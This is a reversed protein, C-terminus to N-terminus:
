NTFSVASENYRHKSVHGDAFCYNAFNDHVFDNNAVASDAALARGNSDSFLVFEAPNRISIVKLGGANSNYFYGTTAIPGVTHRNGTPCIFYAPISNSGTISSALAAIMNSESSFDAGKFAGLQSGVIYFAFIGPEVALGTGASAANALPLRRAGDSAYMTVGQGCQRINSTCKVTQAAKRAKSLAPLLLSALIAIISIVVLLEVLTFKRFM